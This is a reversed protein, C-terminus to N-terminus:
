TLLRLLKNFESSLDDSSMTRGGSMYSKLNSLADGANDGLKTQVREVMGDILDRTSKPLDSYRVKANQDGQPLPLYALVKGLERSGDRVNRITHDDLIGSKIRDCMKIVGQAAARTKDQDGTDALKETKKIQEVIGQLETDGLDYRLRALIRRFRGNSTRPQTKPNYAQRGRVFQERARDIRGQAEASLAAVLAEGPDDCYEPPIGPVKYTSRM